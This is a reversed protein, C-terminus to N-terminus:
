ITSIPKNIFIAIRVIKDTIFFIETVNEHINQKMCLILKNIMINLKLFWSKPTEVAYSEVLPPAPKNVNIWAVSSVRPLHIFLVCQRIRFLTKNNELRQCRLCLKRLTFLHKQLFDWYDWKSSHRIKSSQQQTAKVIFLILLFIQPM